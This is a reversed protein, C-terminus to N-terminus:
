LDRAHKLSHVHEACSTATGAIPIITQVHIYTHTHTHMTTRHTHAHMHIHHTCTHTHAHTHTHITTRHPHAHTHAHHYSTYTHAHTHPTHAHTYTHIAHTCTHPHMAHTHTHIHTRTYTCARMRTHMSEPPLALVSVTNKKEKKCSLPLCILSHLLCSNKSNMCSNLNLFFFLSTLMIILFQIRTSYLAIIM